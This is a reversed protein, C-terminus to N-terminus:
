RSLALKCSSDQRRRRTRGFGSEQSTKGLPIQRVGFLGRKPAQPENELRLGGLAQDKQDRLPKLSVPDQPMKESPARGGSRAPHMKERRGKHSPRRLHVEFREM